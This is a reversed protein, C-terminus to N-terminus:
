EDSPAAPNKYYSSMAKSGVESILPLGYQLFYDMPSPSKPKPNMALKFQLTKFFRDEESERGFRYQAASFDQQRGLTYLSNAFSAAEKLSKGAELAGRLTNEYDRQLGGVRAQTKLPAFVSERSTQLEAAAKALSTSLSGSDLLNRANLMQAIRPTITQEFFKGQTEAIEQESERLAKLEKAPLEASQQKVLRERANKLISSTIEPLAERSANLVSVEEPETLSFGSTEAERKLSDLQTLAPEAINFVGIMQGTRMFSDIIGSYNENRVAETMEKNYISPPTKELDDMLGKFDIKNTIMDREAPTIQRGYKNQFMQDIAGVVGREAFRDVHFKTPGDPPFLGEGYNKIRSRILSRISETTLDAM